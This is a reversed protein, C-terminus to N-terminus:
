LVFMHIAQTKYQVQGFIGWEMFNLIYDTWTATGSLESVVLGIYSCTPLSDISFSAVNDFYPLASTQTHVLVWSSGDNSSYIRFVKPTRTPLDRRATFTCSTLVIPAPLQIYVLDGYYSSDLTYQPSNKSNDFRGNIYNNPAWHAYARPDFLTWPATDASLISSATVRYVGNGYMAGSVTATWTNMGNTSGSPTLTPIGSTALGVPPFRVIQMCM